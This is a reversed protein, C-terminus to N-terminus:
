KILHPSIPTFWVNYCVITKNMTIATSVVCPIRNLYKVLHLFCPAFRISDGVTSKNVYM